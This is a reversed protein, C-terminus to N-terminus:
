DAILGGQFIAYQPNYNKRQFQLINTPRLDPPNIIKHQAYKKENM